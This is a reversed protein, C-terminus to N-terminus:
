GNPYFAQSLFRVKADIHTNIICEGDCSYTVLNHFVRDDLDFIIYETIFEGDVILAHGNELQLISAPSCCILLIDVCNRSKAVMVEILKFVGSAWFGNARGYYFLGGKSIKKGNYRFYSYDIFHIQGKLLHQINLSQLQGVLQPLKRPPGSKVCAYFGDRVARERVGGNTLEDFMARDDASPFSQFFRFNKAWEISLVDRCLLRGNTSNASTRRQRNMAELRSSDSYELDGYFRFQLWISLLSSSNPFGLNYGGFDRLLLNEDAVTASKFNDAMIQRYEVVCKNLYGDYESLDKFDYYEADYVTMTLCLLCILLIKELETFSDWLPKQAVVKLIAFIEKGNPNIIRLKTSFILM